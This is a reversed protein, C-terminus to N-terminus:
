LNEQLSGLYTIKDPPDRKGNKGNGNYVGKHGQDIRGLDDVLYFEIIGHHYFLKSAGPLSDCIHSPVCSQRKEGPKLLLHGQHVLPKEKAIGLLGHPDDGTLCDGEPSRGNEGVPNM